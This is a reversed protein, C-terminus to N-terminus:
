HLPVAWVPQGTPQKSGAMPEVTVAVTSDGPQMTMPM